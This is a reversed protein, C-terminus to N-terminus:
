FTFSSRMFRSSKMIYSLKDVNDIGLRRVQFQFIQAAFFADALANHRYHEKLHYANILNDLTPVEPSVKEHLRERIWSELLAIDLFHCRLKIGARKLAKKLFHHDIEVSHGVLIGDLRRMIEPAVTEFLPANQLDRESIGHYKMSDIRYRAPKITTYFAEGVLIRMKRIPVMACAIIEDRNLNLGTTELDVAVFNVEEVHM